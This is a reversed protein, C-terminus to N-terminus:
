SGRRADLLGESAGDRGSLACVENSFDDLASTLLYFDHSKCLYKLNSLLGNAPYRSVVLEWIAARWDQSQQGTRGCVPQENRLYSPPGECLPQVTTCVPQVVGVVRSQCSWVVVCLCLRGAHLTAFWVSPSAVLCARCHERQRDRLASPSQNLRRKELQPVLVEIFQEVAHESIRKQPDLLEKMLPRSRTVRVLAALIGPNVTKWRDILLQLSYLFKLAGSRSKPM